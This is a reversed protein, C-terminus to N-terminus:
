AQDTKAVLPGLYTLVLMIPLSAIDFLQPAAAKIPEQRPLKCNYTPSILRKAARMAKFRAPESIALYDPAVWREGRATNYGAFFLQDASCVIGAFQVLSEDEYCLLGGHLSYAKGDWIRHSDVSLLPQWGSDTLVQTVSGFGM